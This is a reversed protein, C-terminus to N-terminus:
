LTVQEPWHWTGGKPADSHDVYCAQFFMGEPNFVALPTVLADMFGAVPDGTVIAARCVSKYKQTGDELVPSGHSVYHVIQGVTPQMMPQM